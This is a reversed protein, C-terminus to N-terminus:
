DRALELANRMLMAVTVPGVGGPVPTIADAKEAVEDFVMDGLLRGEEESWNTGVDIATVGAAVMEGTILGARGAAAIVVQAGRLKEAVDRTRTHCVTVTANAHVLLQALPRGVIGSRGVLCVDLGSLGEPHAAELCRMAAMATCPAVRHRGQMLRGAARETVAEVDKTLPVLDRCAFEDLGAPLPMQLMIGTVSEDASLAEMHGRLSDLDTDEPLTDVRHGIGLREAARAQNRTYSESADDKGVAVAVIFPRRGGSEVHAVVAEKVEAKIERAIAKGDIIRATM